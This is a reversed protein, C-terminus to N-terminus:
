IGDELSMKRPDPFSEKASNVIRPGSSQPSQAAPPAISSHATANEPKDQKFNHPEHKAIKQMIQCFTVYAMSIRKEETLREHVMMKSFGQALLSEVEAACSLFEVYAMKRRLPKNAPM